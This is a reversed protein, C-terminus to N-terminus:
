ESKKKRCLKRGDPGIPAREKPPLGLKERCSLHYINCREGKLRMLQEVPITDDEGVSDYCSQRYKCAFRLEKTVNKPAVEKKPTAVAPNPLEKKPIVVKEKEDTEENDQPIEDEEPITVTPEDTSPVNAYCSKRYKCSSKKNEKTIPTQHTKGVSEPLKGDRYCSKRYKCDEKSLKEHQQAMPKAAEKTVKALPPVTKIAEKAKKIVKKVIPPTNKPQEIQEDNDEPMPSHKAENRMDSTLSHDKEPDDRLLQVPGGPEETEKSAMKQYCSKRYKCYLQLENITTPVHNLEHVRPHDRKESLKGTEYCSKRYKCELSTRKREKEVVKEHIMHQRPTEPIVGTDYCSKRYKCSLRPDRAKTMHSDNLDKPSSFTGDPLWNMFTGDSIEPLIGSEYCSTRYKCALKEKLKAEKDTLKLKIPSIKKEPHQEIEHQKEEAQKITKEAIKHLSEVRKAASPLNPAAKTTIIRQTKKENSESLELGVRSYCSPKYKCLLRLQAKDLQDTSNEAEHSRKEVIADISLASAFDSPLEGTEYCSKRYRCQLKAARNAASSSASEKQVSSDRADERQGYVRTKRKNPQVTKRTNRNKKPVNEKATENPEPVSSASALMSPWLTRELKAVAKPEVPADNQPARIDKRLGFPLVSPKIDNCFIVRNPAEIDMESIGWCYSSKELVAL